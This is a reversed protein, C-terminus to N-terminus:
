LAFDLARGEAASRYLTDMIRHDRIAAEPGTRPTEGRRICDAFHEIELKFQSEAGLEITERSKGEGQSRSVIMTVGRYAYANLVEVTADEFMLKLYKDEHAGYSNFSQAVFGSPFQLLFPCSEEVERFRPDNEPQQLTAFVRSPTEGSLFQAVSLCYIGIDPLSGGGARAKDYRWQDNPAATQVNTSSMAKLKGWSNNRVHDRLAVLHPEFQSRYAIMLTVGAAQCIRLIEEAQETSAAMPKELLIHKGAAAVAQVHQLHLGNPTAIYVAAIEPNDRLRDVADYGLTLGIGYQAAVLKAKDGDGSILALPRANRARALAPLVEELAVRGLGMVAMGLRQDPPEPAPPPPSAGDAPLRWDPFRVANNRIQGRDVVSPPRFSQKPSSM